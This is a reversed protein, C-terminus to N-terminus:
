VQERRGMTCFLRHWRLQQRAQERLHRGESGSRTINTKAKIRRPLEALDTLAAQQSVPHFLNKM